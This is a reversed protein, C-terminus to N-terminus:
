GRVSSILAVLLDISDGTSPLCHTTLPAGHGRAGWAIGCSQTTESFQVWQWCLGPILGLFNVPHM